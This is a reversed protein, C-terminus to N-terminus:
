RYPLICFNWNIFLTLDIENALILDAIPMKTYNSDCSIFNNWKM